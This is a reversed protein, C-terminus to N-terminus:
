SSIKGIPANIPRTQFGHSSSSIASSNALTSKASRDGLFPNFGQTIMAMM